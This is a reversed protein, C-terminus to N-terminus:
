NFRGQLKEWQQLLSQFNEMKIIKKKQSFIARRIDPMSFTYNTYHLIIKSCNETMKSKRTLKKAPVLPFKTM